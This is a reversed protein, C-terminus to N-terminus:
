QFVSLSMTEQVDDPFQKLQLEKARSRRVRGAVLLALVAYVVVAILSSVIGILM